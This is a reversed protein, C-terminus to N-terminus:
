MEPTPRALKFSAAFAEFDQRTVRMVEELNREAPNHVERLAVTGPHDSRREAYCCRRLRHVAHATQGSEQNEHMGGCPRRSASRASGRRWARLTKWGLAASWVSVMCFESLSQM